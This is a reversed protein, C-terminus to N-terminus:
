EDIRGFFLKLSNDFLRGRKRRKAKQILQLFEPLDGPRKVLQEYRRRELDEREDFIIHPTIFIFMETKEDTM